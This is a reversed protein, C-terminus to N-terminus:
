RRPRRFLVEPRSAKVRLPLVRVYLGAATVPRQTKHKLAGIPAVHREAVSGPAIAYGGGDAPPAGGRASPAVAHKVKFTRQGRHGFALDHQHDHGVRVIGLETAAAGEG